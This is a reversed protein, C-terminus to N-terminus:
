NHLVWFGWMVSNNTSPSGIVSPIISALSNTTSDMTNTYVLNAMTANATSSAVTPLNTTATSAKTLVTNLATKVAGFQTSVQDVNNALDTLKTTLTAIGAFYTNGNNSINGNLFDDLM